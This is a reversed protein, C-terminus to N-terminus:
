GTLGHFGPVSELGSRRRAALGDLIQVSEVLGEGLLLLGQEPALGILSEEEPEMVVDVFGLAGIVVGPRGHQGASAGSRM